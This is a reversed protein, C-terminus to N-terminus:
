YRLYATNMYLTKINLYRMSQYKLLFTVISYIIIYEIINLYYEKIFWVHFNRYWTIIEINLSM